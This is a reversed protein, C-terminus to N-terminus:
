RNDGGPEHVRVEEITTRRLTITRKGDPLPVPQGVEDTRRRAVREGRLGDLFGERIRGVWRGLQRMSKDQGDPMPATYLANHPNIPKPGLIRLRAPFIGPVM